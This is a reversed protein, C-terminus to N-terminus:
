RRSPRRRGSVVRRAQPVQPSLCRRRSESPLRMSRRTISPRQAINAPRFLAGPVWPSTKESAKRLRQGSSHRERRSRAGAVGTRAPRADRGVNSCSQVPAAVGQLEGVPSACCQVLDPTGRSCPSASHAASESASRSSSAFRRRRRASSLAQRGTNMGPVAARVTGYDGALHRVGSAAGGRRRWPILRRACVAASLRPLPPVIFVSHSLATTPIRTDWRRTLRLWGTAPLLSDLRRDGGWRGPPVPTSRPAQIAGSVLLRDMRETRDTRPGPNLGTRTIVCPHWRISEPSGRCSRAHWAEPGLPRLNSDQGGVYPRPTM